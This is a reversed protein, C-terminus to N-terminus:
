TTPVLISSKQLFQNIFIVTDNISKLEITTGDSKKIIISEKDADLYIVIEENISIFPNNDWGKAYNYKIKEENLYYQDKIYATILENFYGATITANLQYAYKVKHMQLLKSSGYNFLNPSFIYFKYYEFDAIPLNEFNKTKIYEELVTNLSNEVNNHDYSIHFVLRNLYENKTKDIFIQRWNENRDRVTGFNNKCLLIKNSSKKIFYNGFTLLARQMIFDPHLLINPYFLPAIKEYLIIFDPIENKALEILFRIQGYFYPHQEAEIMVKEWANNKNILECKLIEESKQYTVFNTKSILDNQVYLSTEIKLSSVLETISNLYNKFDEPSDVNSNFILNSIVRNYNKLNAKEIETLSIIRKNLKLIYRQIAFFYLKQWWTSKFIKSSFYFSSFSLKNTETFYYDFTTELIDDLLEINSNGNTEVQCLRLFNFYFSLNIKFDDNFFFKEFDFDNTDSILIEIIENNKFYDTSNKLLLSDEKINIKSIFDGLFSLKFYNLYIDDIDFIDSTKANWFIDNWEIDFKLVDEKWLDENYWNENEIKSFLWAKFNEFDSLQKGRANMKVYLDDSLKFDKLNLFDFYIVEEVTLSKNIETFQEDTYQKCYSHIDQLVNLMSVVTADDLWTNSFNELNIIEDKLDDKFQITNINCLIKVFSESSKRTKYRFRLLKKLEDTKKLQTFVYWHILFLTTLRQQGDLPILYTVAGKDNNKAEIKFDSLSLDVSGAYNKISRLLGEIASKNRTFEEENRLGFIKGYIFDLGLPEKTELATIISSIFKTRIAPIKGTNRGQAYDRQIPPIEIGQNNILNWFTNNNKNMAKSPIQLSRQYFNM